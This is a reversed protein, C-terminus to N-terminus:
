RHSVTMEQLIILLNYKEDKTSSAIDRIRLERIQRGMLSCLFWAYILQGSSAADKVSVQYTRCM